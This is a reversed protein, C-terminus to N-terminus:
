KFLNFRPDLSDIVNVREREELRRMLANIEDKRTFGQLTIGGGLYYFFKGMLTLLKM